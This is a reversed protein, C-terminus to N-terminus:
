ITAGKWILNFNNDIAFNYLVRAASDGETKLTFHTSVEIRRCAEKSNKILQNNIYVQTSKKGKGIIEIKISLNNINGKILVNYNKGQTPPYIPKINGFLSIAHNYGLETIIYEGSGKNEFNEWLKSRDVGTELARQLDSQHSILGIDKNAVFFLQLRYAPINNPKLGCLLSSHLLHEELSYKM